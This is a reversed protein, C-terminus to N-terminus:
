LREILIDAGEEGPAVTQCEWRGQELWQRSDDEPMASVILSLRSQGMPTGADTILFVSLLNSVISQTIAEKIKQYEPKTVLGAKKGRPRTIQKSNKFSPVHGLGRIHILLSDIDPNKSSSPLTM